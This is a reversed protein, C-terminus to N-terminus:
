YCKQKGKMKYSISKRQLVDPFVTYFVLFHRWVAWWPMVLFRPVLSWFKEIWELSKRVSCIWDPKPLWSHAATLAKHACLRPQIPLLGGMADQFHLLTNKCPAPLHNTSPPLEQARQLKEGQETHACTGERYHHGKPRTQDPTKVEESKLASYRQFFLHHMINPQRLSSTFHAKVEDHPFSWEQEGDKRVSKDQGGYGSLLAQTGGPLVCVARAGRLEAPLLSCRM